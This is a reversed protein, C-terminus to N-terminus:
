RARFAGRLGDGAAYDARQVVGRDIKPENGVLDAGAGRARKVPARPLRDGSVAAGVRPDEKEALCGAVVLIKLPFGKHTRGPLKEVLEEGSDPEVPPSHEDGVDDTV